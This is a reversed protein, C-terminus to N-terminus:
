ILTGHIHVRNLKSIKIEFNTPHEAVIVKDTQDLYKVGFM